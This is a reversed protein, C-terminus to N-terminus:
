SKCFSDVHALAACLAATRAEDSVREYRMGLLVNERLQGNTFAKKWSIDTDVLKLQSIAKLLQVKMMAHKLAQEEASIILISESGEDDEGNDDLEEISADSRLIALITDASPITYANSKKNHSITTDERPKSVSTNSSSQMITCQGYQSLYICCLAMEFSPENLASLFASVTQSSKARLRRATESALREASLAPPTEKTLSIMLAILRGGITLKRLDLFWDFAVFAIGLPIDMMTRPGTSCPPLQSALSPSKGCLSQEKEFALILWELVSWAHEAVLQTNNYIADKGYSQAFGPSIIEWCHKASSIRAAHYGLSNGSSDMSDDRLTRDYSPIANLLDSAQNTSLLYFLLDMARDITAQSPNAPRPVDVSTNRSLTKSRVIPKKYQNRTPIDPPHLALYLLQRIHQPAPKADKTRLNDLVNLGADYLSEEFCSDVLARLRRPVEPVSAM